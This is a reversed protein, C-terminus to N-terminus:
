NFSRKNEPPTLGPWFVIKIKALCALNDGKEAKLVTNKVLHGDLDQIRNGEKNEHGQLFPFDHVADLAPFIEVPIPKDFRPGSAM